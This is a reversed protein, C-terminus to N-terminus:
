DEVVFTAFRDRERAWRPEDISGDARLVAALSWGMDMVHHLNDAVFLGQRGLVTVDPLTRAWADVIALDGATSATHVPYVSPLRRVEVHAPQARPLGLRALEDVVRAGIDGDSGRWTADGPACPIEACLVTRDRPDPGDRYNKPESLRTMTVTADPVYHADFETYAPRDLVLYALVMARHELRRAAHAVEAPVPGASRVLATPPATWVVRAADLSAVDDVTVGLEIRCGADVAADALREVIQGYGLRPYLFTRKGPQTGRVLKRAMSSPSAAAIRRRALEGALDEPDRGWLKRAYPGYFDRLMTPGLGARVVEAFTDRRPRRMPATAADRLSAVAFAPPLRRLLDAPRLPFGIWRDRLHLRGRRPRTQLDDGLLGRLAALLHPPTSPHLRHSGFDVRVGAVDFSAAMGGVAGAADLVRVAHGALAARWAATLGAPGAGVVVVDSSSV